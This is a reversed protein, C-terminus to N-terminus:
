CDDVITINFKEQKRFLDFFEKVQLNLTLQSQQPLDPSSLPLPSPPDKTHQHGLPFNVLELHIVYTSSTFFQNLCVLREEGDEENPEAQKPYRRVALIVEETVETCSM